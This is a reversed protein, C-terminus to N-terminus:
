CLHGAQAWCHQPQVKLRLLPKKGLFYLQVPTAFGPDQLRLLQMTWATSSPFSSPKNTSLRNAKFTM